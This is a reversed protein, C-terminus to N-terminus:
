QGHQLKQINDKANDFNCLSYAFKPNKRMQSAKNLSALYIDKIPEYDPHRKLWKWLDSKITM